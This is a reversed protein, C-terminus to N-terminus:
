QDLALNWVVRAKHYRFPCCERGQFVMQLPETQWLSQSSAMGQSCAKLELEDGTGLGPVWHHHNMSSAM